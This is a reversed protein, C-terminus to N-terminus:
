DSSQRTLDLGYYTILYLLEKKPLGEYFEKRKKWTQKPDSFFKEHHKIFDEQNSIHYDQEGFHENILDRQGVRTLSKIFPWSMRGVYGWLNVDLCDDCFYFPKHKDYGLTRVSRFCIVKWDALNDECDECIPFNM